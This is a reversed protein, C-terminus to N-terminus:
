LGSHQSTRRLPHQSAAIMPHGLDHSRTPDVGAEDGGHRAQMAGLPDISQIM